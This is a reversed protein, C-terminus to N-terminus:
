TPFPCDLPRNNVRVRITFPSYLSECARVIHCLVEIKSKPDSFNCQMRIKTNRSYVELKIESEQQQDKFLLSIYDSNILGNYLEVSIYKIVYSLLGWVNQDFSAEKLLWFNRISENFWEKGVEKGLIKFSNPTPINPQTAIHETSNQKQEHTNLNPDVPMSSRQKPFTPLPPMPHENDADAFSYPHAVSSFLPPPVPNHSSQNLITSQHRKFRQISQHQQRSVSDNASNNSRDSVVRPQNPGSSSKISQSRNQNSSPGSNGDRSSSSPTIESSNLDIQSNTHNTSSSRPRVGKDFDSSIISNATVFSGHLPELPMWLSGVLCILICLFPILM